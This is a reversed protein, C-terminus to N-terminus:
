ECGSNGFPRNIKPTYRNASQSRQGRLKERQALLFGPGLKLAEGNHQEELSPTHQEDFLVGSKRAFLRSNHNGHFRNNPFQAFPKKGGINLHL